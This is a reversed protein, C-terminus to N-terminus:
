CSFGYIQSTMTVNTLVEKLSPGRNHIFSDGQTELSNICIKLLANYKKICVSNKM